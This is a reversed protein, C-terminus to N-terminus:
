PISKYFVMIFCLFFFLFKDKIRRRCHYCQLALKIYDIRHIPLKINTPLSRNYSLIAFTIRSQEIAKGSLVDKARRLFAKLGKNVGVVNTNHQRYNLYSNSDIFWQYNSSRAFAYCFWDHYDLNESSKRHDILCKQIDKMLKCSMIYTCGPGAAEFFYDWRTQKQAKNILKKEGNDWFAEVNSSYGDFATDKLKNVGLVIKRKHWIDDQDAFGVYDFESYDVQRILHFVNQAATKLTKGRDILIVNVNKEALSECWQASNDLSPDVSVFLTINVSEQALISKVQDEIWLMGNYVPLLIAINPNENKEINYMKLTRVRLLLEHQSSCVM